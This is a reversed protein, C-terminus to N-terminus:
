NWQGSISSHEQLIAAASNFGTYAMVVQVTCHPGLGSSWYPTLAVEAEGKYTELISETDVQAVYKWISRQYHAKVPGKYLRHGSHYLM